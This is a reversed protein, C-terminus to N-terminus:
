TLRAVDVLRVGGVEVTAEDDLVMFRKVASIRVIDMAHVLTDLKILEPMKEQPRQMREFGQEMVHLVGAATTAASAIIMVLAHKQICSHQHSRHQQHQELLYANNSADQPPAPTSPKYKYAV